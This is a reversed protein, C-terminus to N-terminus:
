RAGRHAAQGDATAVCITLLRQERPAPRCLDRSSPRVSRRGRMVQVREARLLAAERRWPRSPAIGNALLPHAALASEISGGAPDQWEGSQALRSSSLRPSRSDTIPAAAREGDM